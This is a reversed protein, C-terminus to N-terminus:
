SHVSLVAGARPRGRHICDCFSFLHPRRSSPLVPRRCDGSEGDLPLLLNRRPPRMGVGRRQTAIGIRARSAWVYM